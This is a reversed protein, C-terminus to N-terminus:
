DVVKIITSILKRLEVRGDEDDRLGHIEDYSKGCEMSLSSFVQGALTREDADSPLEEITSIVEWWIETTIEAALMKWALNRSGAVGGMKLLAAEAKSNGWVTLVEDVPRDYPSEDAADVKWNVVWLMEEPYDTEEGFKRWEFPFNSSSVPERVNFEKRCLVKGPDLGNKRLAPRDAVVRMALIFSMDRHSQLPRLSDPDPSWAQAPINSLDWEKLVEYRMLHRSRVSLSLKLDDKRADLAAVLEHVHDLAIQFRPEVEFDVEQSNLYYPEDSVFGSAPFPAFRCPALASDLLNSVRNPHTGDGFPPIARREKRRQRVQSEARTTM